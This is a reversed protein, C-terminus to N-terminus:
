RVKLIMTSHSISAAMVSIATDMLSFLPVITRKLCKNRWKNGIGLCLALPTRVPRYRLTYHPPPVQASPRLPFVCTLTSLLLCVFCSPYHDCQLLQLIPQHPEAVCLSLSLLSALQSHSVQFSLALLTHAM